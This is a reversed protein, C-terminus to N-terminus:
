PFTPNAAFLRLLRLFPNLPKSNKQAQQAKKAAVETKFDICV